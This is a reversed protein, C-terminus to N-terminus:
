LAPDQRGFVTRGDLRRSQQLKGAVLLCFDQQEVDGASVRVAL